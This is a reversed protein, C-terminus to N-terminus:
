VTRNTLWWPDPTLSPVSVNQEAVAKDRDRPSYTPSSVIRLQQEVGVMQQRLRQIEQLM